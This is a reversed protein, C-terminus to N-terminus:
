AREDRMLLYSPHQLGTPPYFEDHSYTFRLKHLMRRSASNAPHHGAFLGRAGLRDFAHAIAATGAEFAFGQRWFAPRIHVGFEHIGEEPRYPRLGCCGVHAGGELLFIPWYQFGHETQMAIERTLREELAVRGPPEGAYIFRAVEPDGWLGVALYIDEPRWTRFGLRKTTLFYAAVNKELQVLICYTNCQSIDM